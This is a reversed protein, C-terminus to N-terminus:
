YRLFRLGFYIIFSYILKQIKLGIFVINRMVLLILFSSFYKYM